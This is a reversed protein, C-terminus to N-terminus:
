SLVFLHLKKGYAHPYSWAHKTKEEKQRDELTIEKQQPHITKVVFQKL